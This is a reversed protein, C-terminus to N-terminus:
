RRYRSSIVKPAAHRWSILHHIRPEVDGHLRGIRTCSPAYLLTYFSKRYTGFQLYADTVGGPQLQTRVQEIVFPILTLFLRGQRGHLVYANVDENLRGPFEFRRSVSLFFWNMAKRRIIRATPSGGIWDAGQAWCLATLSQQQEYLSMSADMLSQLGVMRLRRVEGGVAHYIRAQVYDDGLLVFYNYGLQSAVDFAANCPWAATNDGPLNDGKDFRTAPKSFIVVREGYLEQYEPLTPDADDVLLYIPSTVGHRELLSLTHQARPRKHTIIIICYRSSVKM